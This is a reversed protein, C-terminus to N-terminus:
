SSDPFTGYILKHLAGAYLRMWDSQLILAIKYQVDPDRSM